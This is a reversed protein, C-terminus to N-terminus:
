EPLYIFEQFAELPILVLKEATTRDRYFWTYSREAEVYPKTEGAGPNCANDVRAMGATPTTTLKGGAISLTGEQYVWGSLACGQDDTGYGFEGYSYTGDANFRYWAGAGTQPAFEETDPDYFNGSTVDGRQWAGVLSQVMGQRYFSASNGANSLTLQVQGGATEAVGYSMTVADFPGDTTTDSNSGCRIVTRTKALSPQLTLEGGAAQATGEKYTSVETVCLGNQIRLFGAYVYAGNASFEYMEGLGATDGWEGTVPDYYEKSPPVGNFWTSVLEDPLSGSPPPPPPPAGEGDKISAPIFLTFDAAPAQARGRLPILLAELLALLLLLLIVRYLRIPKM